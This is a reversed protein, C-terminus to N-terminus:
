KADFSPVPRKCNSNGRTMSSSQQFVPKSADSCVSHSADAKNVQIEAESSVSLLSPSFQGLPSMKSVTAGDTVGDYLGDFAGVPGEVFSGVVATGVVAVGVYEGIGKGVGFGVGSCGAGVETGVYAGCTMGVDGSGDGWGVSYMGDGAGM